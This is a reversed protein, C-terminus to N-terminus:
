LVRDVRWAVTGEHLVARRRMRMLCCECGACARFWVRGPCTRLVRASRLGRMRLISTGAAACAGEASGPVGRM